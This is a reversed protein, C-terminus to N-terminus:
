DYEYYAKARVGSILNLKDIMEDVEVKPALFVLSIINLGEKVKPLGFRGQVYCYYEHLVDNLQPASDQETVYIGVLSVRM